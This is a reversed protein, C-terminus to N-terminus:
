PLTAPLFASEIEERTEPQVHDLFRMGVMLPITLELDEQELVEPPLRYEVPVADPRLWQYVAYRTYDDVTLVGTALDYELQNTARVGPDTAPDDLLDRMWAIMEPTFGLELAGAAPADSPDAPAPREPDPAEPTPKEATTEAVPSTGQGIDGAAEATSTAEDGPLTVTPTQCGSMLAAGAAVTVAVLVNSTRM